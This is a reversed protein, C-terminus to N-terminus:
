FSTNSETVELEETDGGDEDNVAADGDAADGADDMLADGDAVDVIGVEATEAGIGEEEAEEQKLASIVKELEKKQEDLARVAADM